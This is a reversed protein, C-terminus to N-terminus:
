VWSLPNFRRDMHAVHQVSLRFRYDKLGKAYRTWEFYTNSTGPCSSDNWADYASIITRQAPGPHGMLWGTLLHLGAWPEGRALHRPGLTPFRGSQRSRAFTLTLDPVTLLCWLIFDQLHAERTDGLFEELGPVVAGFDVTKVLRPTSQALAGEAPTVSGIFMPRGVVRERTRDPSAIASLSQKVVRCFVTVHSLELPVILVGNPALCRMLQVSLESLSATLIIVDYSGLASVGLDGFDSRHLSVSSLEAQPYALRALELDVATIDFELERAICDLVRLMFGTGVGIQLVKRARSFDISDLLKTVTQVTFAYKPPGLDELHFGLMGDWPAEGLRFTELEISNIADRLVTSRIRIGQVDLRQATTINQSTTM